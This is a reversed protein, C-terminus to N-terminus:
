VSSTDSGMLHEGLGGEPFSEGKQANYSSRLHLKALDTEILDALEQAKILTADSWCGQNLEEVVAHTVNTETNMMVFKAIISPNESLVVKYTTVDIANAKLEGKIM